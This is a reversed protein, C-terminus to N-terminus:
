NNDNLPVVGATHHDCENARTNSTPDQHHYRQHASQSIISASTPFKHVPSPSPTPTPYRIGQVSTSSMGQHQITSVKPASGSPHYICQRPTEHIPNSLSPRPMPYRM